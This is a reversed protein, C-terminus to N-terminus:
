KKHNNKFNLTFIKGEPSLTGPPLNCLSEIEEQPLSLSDLISAPSEVGHEILMTAAQKLALPEESVIQDDLPESKNMRRASIQKRLYLVQYDSLISLDECRKIMAQISVNWRRKLEVFHNLSTSMVEQGFTERPLLFSSAFRHAESEIQNMRTLLDIPEIWKHITLHGVEHMANFRYRGAALKDSGIIIFPRDGRWQSYADVNSDNFKIKSIIFGHKELLHTINNIPGLGLGWLKRLNLTIDEIDEIQLNDLSIGELNPLNIKPFDLQLQFFNFIGEQMDLRSAQMDRSKQATSKLSRFFIAGRPSNSHIPRFFFQTPFNLKNIIKMFVEGSPVSHGLEYQSIAQKTVGIEDSLETVSIGRAMRAERLREPIPTNSTHSGSKFNRGM